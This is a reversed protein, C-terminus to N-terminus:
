RFSPTTPREQRDSRVGEKWGERWADSSTTGPKYPDMTLPQHARGALYGESWSVDPDLEEM